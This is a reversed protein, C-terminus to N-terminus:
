KGAEIVTWDESWRVPDRQPLPYNGLLRFGARALVEETEAVTAYASDPNALSGAFAWHVRSPPAFGEAPAFKDVIILRGGPNLASRVKGLFEAVHLGVDCELAVDFGTPLDDELLDVPQYSIRDGMSNEAAIERGAVCVNATDLVVASLDPHRRLFALSVVGSGGGLDMLRHMGDMDLHRALVDALPAHFEYLMHTFRRAWDPRQVINDYYDPEARGQAAWVSGPERIRLALDLVAPFRERSESALLAWSERSYAAMIATQGTSSTRYRGSVQEILGTKSLLQLWHRCRNSPIGLENAIEDPDMQRDSLQWFLGLELATGLAASVLHADILELVDETTAPIM